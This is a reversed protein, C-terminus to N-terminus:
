SASAGLSIAFKFLDNEFDWTIDAGVAPIAIKDIYVRFGVGPGHWYKYTSELNQYYGAEYYVPTTISGWKPTFIVPEFSIMSDTYNKVSIDGAPLVRSGETGGIFIPKYDISDQWGTNILLKLLLKKHLSINTYITGELKPNFIYNLSSFLSSTINCSWGNNFYENYILNDWSLKLSNKLFLESLESGSLYGTSDSTVFYEFGTTLQWNAGTIIPLENGLSISLSISEQNFTALTEDGTINQHEKYGNNFSGSLSLSYDNELFNKTNWAAFGFLYDTNFFLGSVLVQNLGALNSDFFVAGVLWDETSVYGFPIPILTWKDKVEINLIAELKSIEDLYVIIDKQFIGASLLKQEVDEVISEDVLSGKELGIIELITKDKTRKLNIINIDKLIYETASLITPCLIYFLLVIKLFIKNM